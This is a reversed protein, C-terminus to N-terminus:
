WYLSIVSNIKDNVCEYVADILRVNESLMDEIDMNGVINNVANQIDDETISDCLAEEVMRSVNKMKNEGKLKETTETQEPMERDWCETCNVGATACDFKEEYGFNEPCMFCGGSYRENVYEPRDQMLKERFTM